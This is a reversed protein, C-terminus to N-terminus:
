YSCCRLVLLLPLCCPTTSCKISQKRPPPPTQKNRSLKLALEIAEDGKRLGYYLSRLFEEEDKPYGLEIHPAVGDGELHQGLSNEYIENSLYLTWGNPLKKELADSLIGMTSSGIRTIQSVAMSGLVLTEPASSTQHSTLLSIPKTYKHQSPQLTIKQEKTFGNVTKARKSFLHTEENLFRKLVEMSVVDYGGLNFRLDLIVGRTDRFDQIISDLLTSIGKVEDQQYNPNSDSQELYSFLYDYGTLSDPINYDAFFLMNNLQIYGVNRKIIGWSLLGDGNMDKGFTKPKKVYHRLLKRKVEGVEIAEVEATSDKNPQRHSEYQQMVEDPARVTTHEDGLKDTIERLLFFLEEDTTQESIKGSYTEYVQQWDMGRKYFFPYNEELTHWFVDFNFRPNRLAVSDTGIFSLPLNAIRRLTYKTIGLTRIMSDPTILEFKGLRDIHERRLTFKLTCSIKTHDYVKVETDSIELIRGYGNMLWIGNLSPNLGDTSYAPSVLIFSLILSIFVRCKLSAAFKKYIWPSSLSKM